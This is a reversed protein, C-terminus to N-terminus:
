LFFAPIKRPVGCPMACVFLGPLYGLFRLAPVHSKARTAKCSIHKKQEDIQSDAAYPLEQSTVEM